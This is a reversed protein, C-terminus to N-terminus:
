RMKVGDREMRDVADSIAELYKCFATNEAITNLIGIAEYAYQSIDTMKDDMSIVRIQISTAIGEIKGATEETITTVAGARGSQSESSSSSWGFADALEQRKRLMEETISEQDKRLAEAEQETM